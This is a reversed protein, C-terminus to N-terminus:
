LSDFARQIATGEESALQKTAIVAIKEEFDAVRNAFIKQEYEARVNQPLKERYGWQVPQGPAAINTYEGVHKGDLTRYLVSWNGQMLCEAWKFTKNGLDDTVRLRAFFYENGQAIELERLYLKTYADQIEPTVWNSAELRDRLATAAAV